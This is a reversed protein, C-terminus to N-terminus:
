ETFRYDTFMSAPTEENHVIRFTTENNKRTSMLVPPAGRIFPPKFVINYAGTNDFIIYDGVALDGTFNDSIIDHELCTYGGIIANNLARPKSGANITRFLIPRTGSGTPRVNQISGTITVIQRDRIEKISAVRCVYCMTDAAVSGGPELILTVDCQPFQKKMESGIARGYAEFSPVDYAFLEKFPRTMEGFFGGGIDIYQPRRQKFVKKALKIISRTRGAYSELSRHDTSIHCHIGIPDCGDIAFLQEYAREVDGNGADIGFRSLRTDGIDVNCRVACKVRRGPNKKLYTRLYDIEETSEFHVIAGQEFAEDLEHERKLPGNFIIKEAPFGVMRALQYELGSVVEAMAQQELAIRTLAPLYNTKFSYALRINTYNSQFASRFKELNAIFQNSDFIFFSDGYLSSLEGLQNESLHIVEMRDDAHSIM